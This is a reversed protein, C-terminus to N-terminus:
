RLSVKKEKCILREIVESYSERKSQKLKRIEDLLKKNTRMFTKDTMEIRVGTICINYM